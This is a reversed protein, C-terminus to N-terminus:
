SRTINNIKYERYMGVYAAYNPIMSLTLSYDAESGGWVALGANTQYNTAFIRTAYELERTVTIGQQNTRKLMVARPVGAKKSSSKTSTRQRKSSSGRSKSGTRKSGASTNTRQM